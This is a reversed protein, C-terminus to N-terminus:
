AYLDLMGRGPRLRLTTAAPAMGALGATGGSRSAEDRPTKAERQPAQFASADGSGGSSVGAQGLSLGQGALMERLAPLAQALGERTLSHAAAFSIDATQANLSLQIRIPGLDAPNLHLEAQQVGGEVMVKVEAALDGGFAADLPHTPLAAQHVPGSPATPTALPAGLDHTPLATPALEIGLGGAHAAPAHTEAREAAAGQQALVAAFAGPASATTAPAAVAPDIATLPAAAAATARGAGPRAPDQGVAEAGGQARSAESAARRDPRQEHAAQAAQLLAALGPLNQATDASAAPPQHPPMAPTPPQAQTPDALAALARDTALEGAGAAPTAAESAEATGGTDSALATVGDTIDGCLGQLLAAFADGGGAAPGASATSASSATASAGPHSKHVSASTALNM